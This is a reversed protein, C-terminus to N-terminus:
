VTLLEKTEAELNEEELSEIIQWQLDNAYNAYYQIQHYALELERRLKYEKLTMGDVLQWDDSLRWILKDYARISLVVLWRINTKVSADHFWYITRNWKNNLLNTIKLM